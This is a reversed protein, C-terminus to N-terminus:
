CARPVRSALDTLQSIKSQTLAQSSLATVSVPVDRLNEERKRATVVIDEIGAAGELGTPPLTVASDQAWAACPLVISIATGILAAVRLRIIIM